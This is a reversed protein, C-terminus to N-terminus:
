HMGAPESKHYYKTYQRYYQYYPYGLKKYDAHNIIGGIIVGNAATIKEVMKRGVNQHVKGAEFVLITGHVKGTMIL